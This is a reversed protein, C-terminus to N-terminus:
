KSSRRIVEFILWHDGAKILRVLASETARDITQSVSGDADVVKYGNVLYTVDVFAFQRDFAFFSAKQVTWGGGEARRGGSFDDKIAKIVDRCTCGAETLASLGSTDGTTSAHNLAAFFERVVQVPKQQPPDTPRPSSTAGSAHPPPLKAVGAAAGRATTCAACTIWAILLVAWVSARRGFWGRKSRTKM